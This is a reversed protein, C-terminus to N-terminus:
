TDLELRMLIRRPRRMKQALWESEEKEFVYGEREYLAKAAPNNAEVHVYAVRVGSDPLLAHAHRLMLSAAGLRRYAPSVCVNFIYARGVDLRGGAMPQGAAPVPPPAARTAARAAAAANRSRIDAVRQAAPSLKRVRPLDGELVEGPLREGRHIDLTGVVELGGAIMHQDGVGSGERRAADRDALGDLEGRRGVAALCTVEMGLRQMKHLRAEEARRRADLWSREQRAAADGGLVLTGDPPGPYHYFCEVRLAACAALLSESGTADTVEFATTAVPTPVCRAVHRPAHRQGHGRTRAAPRNGAGRGLAAQMGAM